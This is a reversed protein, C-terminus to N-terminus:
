VSAERAVVVRSLGLCFGSGPVADDLLQRVGIPSCVGSSDAGCDQSQTEGRSPLRGWDPASLRMRKFFSGPKFEARLTM